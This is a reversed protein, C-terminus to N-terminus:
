FIFNDESYNSLEADLAVTLLGNEHPLDISFGTASGGYTVELDDFSSIGPPAIASLDLVDATGFDMINVYGVEARIVFTDREDTGDGGTLIARFEAAFDDVVFRDHGEGGKFTGTKGFIYFTDNGGQGLATFADWLNTGLADTLPRFTMRDNGDGAEIADRWYGGITRDARVDLTDDGTSALIQVTSATVKAREADDNEGDGSQFSAGFALDVTDAAITYSDVGTGGIVDATAARHIAITDDGVGATLGIDGATTVTFSDDGEGGYVATWYGAKGKVVFTDDGERGYLWGGDRGGTIHDDFATAVVRKVNVLTDVDGPGVNVTRAILDATIGHDVSFYYATTTGEDNGILRDNGAGGELIAGGGAPDDVWSPDYRLVDDGDGGSLWGVGRVLDNGDGGDLIGIGSITDNGEEGSLHNLQELQGETLPTADHEFLYVLEGITAASLEARSDLIIDDDDGGFVSDAGADGSLRDNGADGHLEDRDDGGFLIDDDAGGHLLDSGTGGGLTDIGAGGFLSDNGARGGLNDDGDLGELRNDAGDGIIRDALITGIINEIRILVDTGGWPDLGSDHGLQVTVGNRPNGISYDVTDSDGGGDIEDDGSSGYFLDDGAKGSLTDDGDFSWFTNAQRNGIFTDAASSGWLGEIGRLEITAGSEETGTHQSLDVTVPLGAEFMVVDFGGGGFYKDAGSMGNFRDDGDGGRFVDALGTGNIQEINSFQDVGGYPDKVRGLDVRAVIGQTQPEGAPSIDYGLIDYGAGGDIIDNGGGPQYWERYGLLTSYFGTASGTITDDGATGWVDEIETVQGTDVRVFAGDSANRWWVSYSGASLDIAAKFIEATYADSVAEKEPDERIGFRVSGSGNLRLQDLGEGGYLHDSGPGARLTDNGEGGFFRDDDATGYADYDYGGGLFDGGGGGDVIDNGDFDRIVDAESGGNLVNAKWDGDITAM